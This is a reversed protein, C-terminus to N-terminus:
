VLSKKLEDAMRRAVVRALGLSKEGKLTISLYFENGIPHVIFTAKACVIVVEGVEGATMGRSAKQSTRHMSALEADVLGFDFDSVQSYGALSIGDVGAISAAIAGPVELVVQKVYEHYEDTGKPDPMETM